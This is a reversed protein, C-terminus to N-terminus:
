GANGLRNLNSNLRDEAQFAKAMDWEWAGRRFIMGHTPNNPAFKCQLKDGEKGPETLEAITRTCCRFLGGARIRDM